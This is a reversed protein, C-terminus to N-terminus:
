RAQRRDLAPASLSRHSATLNSAMAARQSGSYAPKAPPTRLKDLSDAWELMMKRREPLHSTRNYSRGKPDRVEHARQHEIIDPRRDPADHRERPHALPM